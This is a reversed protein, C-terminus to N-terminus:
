EVKMTHVTITSTNSRPVRSQTPVRLLYGPKKLHKLSGIRTGLVSFRTWLILSIPDRSPWVPYRVNEKFFEQYLLEHKRIAFGRSRNRTAAARLNGPLLFMDGKVAFQRRREENAILNIKVLMLRWLGRQDEEEVTKLLRSNQLAVDEEACHAAADTDDGRDVFVKEIKQVADLVSQCFDDLADAVDLM